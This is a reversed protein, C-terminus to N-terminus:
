HKFNDYVMYYIIYLNNMYHEHGGEDGIGFFNFSIYINHDQKQNHQILIM